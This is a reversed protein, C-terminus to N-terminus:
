KFVMLHYIIVMNCKIIDVIKKQMFLWISATIM